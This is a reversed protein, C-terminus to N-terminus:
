TINAQSHRETNESNLRSRTLKQKQDNECHVWHVISHSYIKVPNGVELKYSPLSSHPFGVGKEQSGAPRARVFEFSPSTCGLSSVLSYKVWIYYGPSERIIM